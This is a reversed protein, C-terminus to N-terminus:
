VLEITLATINDHGASELASAVLQRALPQAAPHGASARLKEAIQSDYLGETLGDSCLLFMEGPQLYVSGVQPSM